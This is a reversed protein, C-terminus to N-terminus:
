LELDLLIHTGLIEPLYEKFKLLSYLWEITPNEYGKDFIKCYKPESFDLISCIKGYRVKFSGHRIRIYKLIPFVGKIQEDPFNFRYLFAEIIADKENNLKYKHVKTKLTNLFNNGIDTCCFRLYKRKKPPQTCSAFGIGMGEYKERKIDENKMNNAYYGHEVVNLILERLSFYFPIYYEYYEEGTPNFDSRKQLIHKIYSGTSDIIKDATNKNLLQIRQPSFADRVQRYKSKIIDNFLYENLFSFHTIDRVNEFGIYRIYDVKDLNHPLIIETYLNNFDRFLSIFAIWIMGDHTLVDINNLDIQLDDHKFIKEWVDYNKLESFVEWSFYKKQIYPKIYDSIKILEMTM